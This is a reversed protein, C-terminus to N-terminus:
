EAPKCVNIRKPDIVRSIKFRQFRELLAQVGHELEFDREETYLPFLSYFHTSAGDSRNMRAFNSDSTIALICSLETNPAFRKPPEENAFVGYEGGLFTHAGFPYNAIRLMWEIPWKDNEGAERLNLQWSKPMHMVLEAYKYEEHEPPTNMPLRSMGKTILVNSENFEVKMIAIKPETVLTQRIELPSPEGLTEAVHRRVLNMEDEAM